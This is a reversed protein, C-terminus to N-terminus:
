TMAITLLMIDKAGNQKLLNACFNSTTGTTHVDDVLIIKKGQIIHAYKSNFIISGKINKERQQKSLKIQSKTYKYKVLIDPIDLINTIKGLEYALIQSQNYQRYIRKLRHMPVPCIIDNGMIDHKYRNFMLNAFFNALIIKDNYKFAHILDRSYEDFKYLSRAINYQPPIQICKGCITNDHISVDFPTGCINCYANTIYSLKALCQACLGQVDHNNTIIKCSLCTNPIIFNLITSFIKQLINKHNCAVQM